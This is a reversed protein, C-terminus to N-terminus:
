CITSLGECPGGVEDTLAQYAKAILMFKAASSPDNPNRDPHHRLSLTRYAKRIAKDASGEGIGLIDFPNFAQIESVTSLAIVVKLFFGFLVLFIIFQIIYIPSWIHDRAEKRKTEFVRLCSSCNCYHYSHGAKSRTPIAKWGSLSSILTSLQYIGLPLLICLLSAGGFYLSAIDDYDLLQEKSKTFAERFSM